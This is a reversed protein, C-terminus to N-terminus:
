TVGTLNNNNNELLSELFRQTRNMHGSLVLEKRTSNLALSNLTKKGSKPM